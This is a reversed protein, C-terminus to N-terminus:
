GSFRVLPNLTTHLDAYEYSTVYPSSTVILDVSDNPVPQVKASGIQINLYKDLDDKVESPVEKIFIACKGKANQVPQRRIADCPLTFRKKLDRTPKTSSQSWISCTKLM